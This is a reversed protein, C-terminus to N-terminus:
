PNNNQNWNDGWKEYIFNPLTREMNPDQPQWGGMQFRANKSPTLLHSFYIDNQQCYAKVEDIEVDFLDVGPQRTFYVSHITPHEQLLNLIDTREFENFHDAFESDIFKSIVEFHLLNQENADEIVAIFDTIAICHQHCFNKWQIPGAHRLGEANFMRPLIDWFYNNGTRGYFWIAYNDAPWEPNFTGIILVEPEFDLDNLHLYDYFKHQCAM